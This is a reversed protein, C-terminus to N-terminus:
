RAPQGQSSGHVLACDRAYRAPSTGVMATFDRIFHAQDSYGLEAALQVWNTDAGEAAQKIAEYIRYRQVVWKPGIGVYEAFLRQLTRATLGFERALVAVRTVAPDAAVRDVMWGVEEAAPERDPVVSCLFRDMVLVMDADGTAERVGNVMAAAGPGFVQAIPITRGTLASVRSRLFPHFGGPRFRVGLVCGEGRLVYRFQRRIIGTIRSRDPEVTMNIVPAPLVQQEYPERGRLDWRVIWYYEVFPDLLPTPPLRSVQFRAQGAAARLVGRAEECVATAMATGAWLRDHKKLVDGSRRRYRATM